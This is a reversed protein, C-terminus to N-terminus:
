APRRADRRRQVLGDGGHETVAENLTPAFAGPDDVVPLVRADAQLPVSPATVTLSTDTGAPADQV